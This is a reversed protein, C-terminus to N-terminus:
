RKRSRKAIKTISAQARDYDKYRREAERFEPTHIRRRGNVRETGLVKHLLEHYIVFDVVYAPTSPTDLSVSVTVCDRAADYQGLKRITPTRSWRIQPRQVTGSFYTRNVRDFAAALDHQRGRPADSRGTAAPTVAELGTQIATFADGVGYDRVTRRPAGAGPQSLAARVLEDLVPRPAGVFGEHILIQYAGKSIRTQYLMSTPGIEIHLAPAVEHDGVTALRQRAARLVYALTSVHQALVNPGSIFRLWQYVRRSRVPLAGPSTGESQCQEAIADATAQLRQSLECLTAQSAPLPEKRDAIRLLEQQYRRGQAVVGNVRPQPRAQRHPASAGCRQARDRDRVSDVLRALGRARRTGQEGTM